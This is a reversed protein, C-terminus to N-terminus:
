SDTLTIGLSTQRIYRTYYKSNIADNVELVITDVGNRTRKSIKYAGESVPGLYIYEVATGKELIVAINAYEGKIIAKALEYVLADGNYELESWDLLNTITYQSTGPEDPNEVIFAIPLTFTDFRWGDETKTLSCEYSINVENGEADKELTVTVTAKKDSDLTVNLRFQLDSNLQKSTFGSLRYLKGDFETFIQEGDLGELRLINNVTAQSFITSLHKALEEQTEYYLPMEEEDVGKQILAKLYTYGGYEVSDEANYISDTVYPTFWSYASVAADFLMAIEDKAKKEGIMKDLVAESSQKSYAKQGMSGLFEYTYNFVDGEYIFFLLPTGNTDKAYIRMQDDFYMQHTLKFRSWDRDGVTYAIDLSYIDVRITEDVEISDYETFNVVEYQAFLLAPIRNVAAWKASEEARIQEARGGDDVYFNWTQALDYSVFYVTNVMEKAGNYINIPINIKEGDYFPKGAKAYSDMVSDPVVIYLPRWSTGGDTTLYVNPENAAKSHYDYSIIGIDRNLFTGHELLDHWDQEPPAEQQKEWTKGGDSTIYIFTEITGDVAILAGDRPTWFTGVFNDITDMENKLSLTSQTWTQGGDDTSAFQINPMSIDPCYIVFMKNRCVELKMRPYATSSNNYIFPTEIVNANEYADRIVIKSANVDLYANTSPEPFDSEDEFHTNGIGLDLSLNANNLIVEKKGCACLGLILLLLAVLAATKIIDTKIKM